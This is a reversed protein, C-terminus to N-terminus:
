AVLPELGQGIQPYFRAQPAAPMRGQDTTRRGLVFAAPADVIRAIVSSGISAPSSCTGAGSASPGFRLGGFSAIASARTRAGVRPFRLSPLKRSATLESSCTRAQHYM